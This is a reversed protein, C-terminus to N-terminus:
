TVPAPEHDSAESHQPVAGRAPMLMALLVAGALAVAACCALVLDMAHVYATHASAALAPDSLRGALTVAANVSQRAIRAAPEPLGTVELRDTYASALISGLLAVGLAGGVQRVTM